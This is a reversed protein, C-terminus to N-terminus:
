RRFIGGLWLLTMIVFVVVGMVLWFLAFSQLARMCATAWERRTRPIPAPGFSEDFEGALLYVYTGLFPFVFLLVDKWPDRLQISIFVILVLLVLLIPRLVRTRPGNPLGRPM